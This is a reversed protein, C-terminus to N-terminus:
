SARRALTEKPPLEGYKARYTNCPDCIRDKRRSPRISCHACFKDAAAKRLKGVFRELRQVDPDDRDARMLSYSLVDHAALVEEITADIKM